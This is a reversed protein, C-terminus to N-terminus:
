LSSVRMAEDANEKWLFYQQRVSQAVWEPIDYENGDYEDTPSFSGFLIVDGCIVQGFIISCIPNFPLGDILGTDNVYGHFKEGRVCDFWDGRPSAVVEKITSYTEGQPIERITPTSGDAKIILATTMFVNHRTLRILVVQCGFFQSKQKQRPPSSPRVNQRTLVM